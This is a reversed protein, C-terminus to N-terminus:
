FLELHRADLLDVTREILRRMTPQLARDVRSALAFTISDEDGRRVSEMLCLLWDEDFTTERAGPRHFVVRRRLAKPMLQLLLTLTKDDIPCGACRELAPLAREDIRRELRARVACRRASELCFVRHPDVPPPAIDSIGLSPHM